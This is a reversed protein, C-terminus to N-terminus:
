DLIYKKWNSPLSCNNEIGKFMPAIEEDEYGALGTGIATIFFFLDPKLKVEQLFETVYKDIETLDLINLDTDKTPIAYSKGTYGKGIGYEAKFSQRAVLAAGRGHRGALNSGFVFILNDPTKTLNPLSGNPHFFPM